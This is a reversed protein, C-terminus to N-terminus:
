TKKSETMSSFTAGSYISFVAERHLMCLDDSGGPEFGMSYCV